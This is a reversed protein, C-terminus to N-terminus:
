DRLGLYSIPPPSYYYWKILQNPFPVHERQLWQVRRSELGGILSIMCVYPSYHRRAYPSDVAWVYYKKESFAEM